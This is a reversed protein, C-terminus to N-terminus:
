HQAFHDKTLKIVVPSLVLLSVLNPLAMLGNLTDALLWVTNLQSIAGLPIVAVWILRYPLIARAGFLFEWCREGYYSWGLITTFAFIVLAITLLYNGTGPMASEFAASSLAAGSLGNSWVGSCIIALGTMSCVILTDIFTGMMGILGSTVPDKSTGAAQAIGASGLGAENSFVGRAVGFRMAAIMAAGAFGGVAAHGNFASDLILLLAAPIAAYNVILVFAAALVYALCMFPVLTQAVAGIRQIGGLIVLGVLAMICLGSLWAPIAFSVTLSAAMSNVQVMNGIGFSALGGFLAFCAGLWAWKRGLGNKIAYMPGGVFHNQGNKERFHVALVVECYKTAMGVLATCWMWFLAGPGGLVIATAVGAINGTGVTAALTTMLAAFPSIQGTSADGKARGQWIELFGRKINCIPMFKLSLMLFLGSGLIAILMPPGWVLDNITSVITNFTQM